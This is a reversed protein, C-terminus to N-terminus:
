LGLPLRSCAPVCCLLVVRPRPPLRTFPPSVRTCHDIQPKMTVGFSRVRVAHDLPVLAARVARTCALSLPETGANTKAYGDAGSAILVRVARVDGAVTAYHLPTAGLNDRADLFEPDNRGRLLLATPVVPGSGNATGDSRLDALSGTSLDVMAGDPFLPAFPPRKSRAASFSFRTADHDLARPLCAGRSAAAYHLVTRGAKDRCSLMTLFAREHNVIRLRDIRDLEDFDHGGQHVQAFRVAVKQSHADRDIAETGCALMHVLLEPKNFLAALHLLTIGEPTLPETVMLIESAPLVSSLFRGDGARVAEVHEYAPHGPSVGSFSPLRLAAVEAM